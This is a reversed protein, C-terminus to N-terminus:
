TQKVSPTNKKKLKECSLGHVGLAHHTQQVVTLIADCWVHKEEFIPQQNLFTYTVTAKLSLSWKIKPQLQFNQKNTVTVQILM